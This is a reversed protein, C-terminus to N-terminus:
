TGRLEEIFEGKHFVKGDKISAKCYNAEKENVVGSKLLQEIDSNHEEFFYGRVDEETIKGHGRSEARKELPGQFKTSTLNNWNIECKAAYRKLLLLGPETYDDTTHTM